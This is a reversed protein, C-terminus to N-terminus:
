TILMHSDHTSSSCIGSIIEQLGWGELPDRNLVSWCHELSDNKIGENKAGRKVGRRLLEEGEM